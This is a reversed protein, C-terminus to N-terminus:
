VANPGESGDPSRSFFEIYQEWLKLDATFKTELLINTVIHESGTPEFIPGIGVRSLIQDAFVSFLQYFCM